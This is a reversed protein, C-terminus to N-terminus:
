EAVVEAESSTTTTTTEERSECHEGKVRHKKSFLCYYYCVVFLLVSLCFQIARM